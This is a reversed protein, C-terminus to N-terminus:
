SGSVIIYVQTGGGRYSAKVTAYCKTIGTPCKYITIPFIVQVDNEAFHVPYNPVAVIHPTIHSPGAPLVSSTIIVDAGGPGAPGNLYVRGNVQLGNDPIVHNTVPFTGPGCVLIGSGAGMISTICVSSVAAPNDTLGATKTVGGYSASITVSAPNNVPKTNVTFTWPSGRQVWVSSPVTAITTDSSSLSINISGGPCVPGSLTMTGLSGAGGTVVEPNLTLNNLSLPVVTLTAQKIVGQYSASIVVSTSSSVHGAYIQFTASTESSPGVSVFVTTVVSVAANNSHLNVAVQTGPPVSPFSGYANLTVKGTVTECEPVSTANFAIGSLAWGGTVTIPPPSIIPHEAGRAPSLALCLIGVVLGMTKTFTRM